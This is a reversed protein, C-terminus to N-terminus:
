KMDSITGTVTIVRRKSAKTLSDLYSKIYDKNSDNGLNSKVKIESGKDTKKVYVNVTEEERNESRRTKATFTHKKADSHIFDWDLDVANKYALQYAQELSKDVEITQTRNKAFNRNLTACSSLIILLFLPLLRKM